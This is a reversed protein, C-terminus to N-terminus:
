LSSYPGQSCQWCGAQSRSWVIDKGIIKWKNVRLFANRVLRRNRRKWTM